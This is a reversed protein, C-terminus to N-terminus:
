PWVLQVTAQRFVVNLFTNFASQREKRDEGTIITGASQGLRKVQLTYTFDLRKRFYSWQAPPVVALLAKEFHELTANEARAASFHVMYRAGQLVFTVVFPCTM